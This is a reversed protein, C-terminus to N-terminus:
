AAAKWADPNPADHLHGVVQRPTYIGLGEYELQWRDSFPSAILAEPAADRRVGGLAHALRETAQKVFRASLPRTLSWAVWRRSSRNDRWVFTPAPRFRQLRLCSDPKTLHVWLMPADGWSLDDHRRARPIASVYCDHADLLRTLRDRQECPVWCVVPEDDTLHVEHRYGLRDPHLLLWLDAPSMRREM